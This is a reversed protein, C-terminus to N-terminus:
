AAKGILKPALAAISGAGMCVLVDGPQVTKAVHEETADLPGTLMTKCGSLEATDAAFKPLDLTGHEIDKRAVYVDPLLLVDADAFARVFADYQSLARDHTHHQFVCVIRRKPHAERMAALTARVEVPHHGYDDVLTIGGQLEGLVEMRRWTGAFTKLASRADPEAVEQLIATMLALQGNKRMHGGPTALQPELLLDANHGKRGAQSVLRAVQADQGHFVMDGDEPLLRFFDVFAQEYEALDKYADFHDGDANTVVVVNPSLHHFSRRYECAEVVFIDSAGKRWNRGGLERMKTGVIVSPDRGCDLFIKAIMATTSSKGHTGCVAIVFHDQSLEGLAAFYSLSRIGRERALRREPADPSVAETYVFLDLDDPLATGDQVLSVTIGQSRLDELLASDSRDSGFVEHGEANRYAAYASLGIGGIGSCFIRM